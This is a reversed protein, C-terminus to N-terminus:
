LGVINKKRNKPEIYGVGLLQFIERENTLLPVRIFGPGYVTQAKALDTVTIDYESLKLGLQIARERMLVNFRGSGTFYMLSYPWAEKTAMRIDIRHAISSDNLRIIGMYKSEGQALTAPLYPKLLNVIYDLTVGPSELILLDIDSSEPEERRYSGAMEWTINSLIGKLFTNIQNMEARPIKVELHLRWMIGMKQAHTLEAKYWLDYLTRFGRNYFQEAHVDGIGHISKFLRITNIKEDPPKLVDLRQVHGTRLYEDVAAVTSKGVGQLHAVDVGSRVVLGQSMAVKISDAAKKFAKGRFADSKGEYYSLEELMQVIGAPDGM